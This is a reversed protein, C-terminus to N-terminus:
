GRLMALRQQALGYQPHVRLAAQYDDRALESRGTQECAMGRICYAAALILVFRQDAALRRDNILKNADGIALDALGNMLTRYSFGVTARLWTVYAADEPATPLGFDVPIGLQQLETAVPSVPPTHGGGGQLGQVRRLVGVATQCGAFRLRLRKIPVGWEISLDSIDAQGYGYAGVGQATIQMRQISSLTIERGGQTKLLLDMDDVSQPCPGRNKLRQSASGKLFALRRNSLCLSGSGECGGSWLRRWWGGDESFLFVEPECVILDLLEVSNM